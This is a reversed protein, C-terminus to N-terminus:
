SAGPGTAQGIGLLNGESDYFFAGIEGTGKSPYHDPAESLVDDRAALGPHDVTEFSVGRARLEAVAQEVNDVEFGVLPARSRPGAGAAQDGRASPDATRDNRM